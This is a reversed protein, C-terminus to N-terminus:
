VYGKVFYTMSTRWYTADRPRAALAGAHLKGPPELLTMGAGGLVEPMMRDAMAVASSTLLLDLPAALEDASKSTTALM